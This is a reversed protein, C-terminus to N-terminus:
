RTCIDAELWDGNLQVPVLALNLGQQSTVVPIVVHMCYHGNLTSQEGNSTM